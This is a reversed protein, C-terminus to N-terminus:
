DLLELPVVEGAGVPGFGVEPLDGLDPDRPRRSRDTAFGEVHYTV